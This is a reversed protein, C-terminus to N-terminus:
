APVGVNMLGGLNGGMVKAQDAESLGALDDV